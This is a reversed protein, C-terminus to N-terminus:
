EPLGALKARVFAILNTFAPPMTAKLQADTLQGLAQLHEAPKSGLKFLAHYTAFLKLQDATYQNVDGHSKGLVSKITSGEPATQQGPLPAGYTQPFATLYAFDLDLPSSFFVGQGELYTLWENGLSSAFMGPAANWAPISAVNAATLQENPPNYRLLQEAAYRVRGWGGQYRGLDLDLLTVYPIQLAALLRWFHNVHRGGLPVVSISAEDGGVDQVKLLRPIVIEESDGEGLIVLRSFYLEPYAQVAERVFKYAEDTELPMVISKVTTSREENLRLYRIREPPVRKLISPSHTAVVAQADEQGTLSGLCNLVRGLYHPSLSNEPEELAILTFIAPRLKDPDFAKTEGKLVKRGIAQMALVLAFYLLSKQGDSLRSFDVTQETEGPSFGITLHRLLQELEGSIFSVAPTSYFKSKHLDTWSSKLQSSIDAIATNSALQKSINASLGTITERETTWNAARLARGLLTTAAYSVHDAPDRRAPLYHVQFNNRDYRSVAATKTPEHAGDTELVFLCQEDIEGETDMEASLRIRVCPVGDATLLQMHAFNAPITAYKGTPAKLEPFEFHAEIWLRQKQATPKGLSAEKTHFDTRRIPRLSREFGFLRVLALLVATKGSGNPGLLFTLEELDITVPKEPFSQFNCLRLKVLKM